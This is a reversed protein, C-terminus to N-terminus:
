RTGGRVADFVKQAVSEPDEHEWARVVRWGAAELLATARQDREVTRALKTRWFEARAKGPRCHDPCAHWFCGDVFVAVKRRPFVFDPRVRFGDLHVPRDRFYRLGLAFLASSVRSEPGSGFRKNACLAAHRDAGSSLSSASMALNLKARVAAQRLMPTAPSASVEAVKAVATRPALGDVDGRFGLEFRPLTTPRSEHRCGWRRPSRGDHLNLSSLRKVIM